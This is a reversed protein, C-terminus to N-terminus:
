KLADANCHSDLLDFPKKDTLTKQNINAGHNILFKILDYNLQKQSKNM